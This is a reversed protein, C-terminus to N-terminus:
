WSVPLNNLSINQIAPIKQVANAGESGYIAGLSKSAFQSGPGAVALASKLEPFGAEPLSFGTKWVQDLALTPSSQPQTQTQPGVNTPVVSFVIEETTFRNTGYDAEPLGQAHLGIFGGAGGGSNGGGASGLGFADGAGEFIPRGTLLNTVTQSAFSKAANLGVSAVQTVVANALGNGIEPPVLSSVQNLLYNQGEDLAYGTADTVAGSLVNNVSFQINSSFQNALQSSINNGAGAVVTNVLGGGFNSFSM